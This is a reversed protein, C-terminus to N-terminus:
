SQGFLHVLFPTWAIAILLALVAEARLVRRLVQVREPEAEVMWVRTMLMDLLVVAFIMPGIAPLVATRVLGWGELVIETSPGPASVIALLGLLILMIRLPGLDHLWTKINM